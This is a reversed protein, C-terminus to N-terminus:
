PFCGLLTCSRKPLSYAKPLDVGNCQQKICFDVCTHTFHSNNVIVLINRFMKSFLTAALEFLPWAWRVLCHMDALSIIPFHKLLQRALHDNFMANKDASVTVVPMNVLFLDTVGSLLFLNYVQNMKVYQFPSVLSICLLNRCQLIFTQDIYYIYTLSINLEFIWYHVM